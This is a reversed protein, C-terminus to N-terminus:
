IQYNLILILKQSFCWCFGKMCKIQVTHIYLQDEDITQKRGHVKILRQNRQHLIFAKRFVRERGTDERCTRCCMRFGAKRWLKSFPSPSGSRPGGLGSPSLGSLMVLTKMVLTVSGEGGRGAGGWGAAEYM